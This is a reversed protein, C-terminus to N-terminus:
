SFESHFRSNLFNLRWVLTASSNKMRECPANKKKALNRFIFFRVNLSNRGSAVFNALYFNLRRLRGFSATGSALRRLRCLNHLLHHLAACSCFISSVTSSRLPTAATAFSETSVCSPSGTAFLGTCLAFIHSQLNLFYWCNKIWCCSSKIVFLIIFLFLLSM